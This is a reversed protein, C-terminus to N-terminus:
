SVAVPQLERIAHDPGTLYQRAWAAVQEQQTFLIIQRKEAAKHLLTLIENTRGADAHVTIDDLILPCSDHAKTLHDALAIRLLLYIQEATGQSLRDAKRWRRSQGCVEVDLNTPNVTVDTYRGATIDALSEKVAAALVPAFERHVRQQAHELFKRTRTLTAQLQQVRALEAKADDLAEEAEAVSPISAAFRRLQGAADSAQNSVDRAKEYLDPLQEASTTPDATALLGPRARAALEQAKRTASAAEKDLEDSSRGKLLAKLEASQQRAADSQEILRSREHLWQRLASVTSEPADPPFGCAAGAAAALRAAEAREQRDEEARRENQQQATLQALLTERRMAQQAQQARRSCTDRYNKVAATVDQLKRSAVVHGRSVLTEALRTVASAVTDDLEKHQRVWKDLDQSHSALRARATIVDRIAQPDVPVGVEACRQVAQERNRTAEAVQRTATELEALLTAHRNAAASSSGGRLRVGGFAGLAVAVAFAAVGAVVNNTILLFVAAAGLAAAATFIVIGGKRPSRTSGLDRRAKEEAAALEPDVEPLPAELALALSVLEQDSAPVAPSVAEPAAPRNWELQELQAEARNLLEQADAVTSHVERDGEPMQPLANIQAQLQYTAPGTLEPEEPQSHWKTLAQTVQQALADDEAAPTVPTDALAEALRKAQRAQMTLEQAEQAAAAAEHAVKVAEVHEAEGRLRDAAEALQLYEEHDRRAAALREESVQVANLALRLPKTSNARDLGVHDRAFADILRLAAAATTDAGATDAALQLQQQLGGAEERVQLMQAQGVCATATFSSRDLGLWRAADPTGEYTVEDSVDQGIDLDKAHCDVKGALDQRLEIRRGGDLVIEATVLWDDGDWPKHLEIFRLEDKRPPGKGRRRGCLAAYIAAHWSSKGSENDGIVVTMGDAFELTENVLPGFAHSTVKRIKM